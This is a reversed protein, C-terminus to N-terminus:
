WYDFFYIWATGVARAC